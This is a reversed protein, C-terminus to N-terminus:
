GTCEHRRSPLIGMADVEDTRCGPEGPHGPPVAEGGRPPLSRRIADADRGFTLGGTNETVGAQHAQVM